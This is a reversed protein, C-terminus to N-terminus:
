EFNETDIGLTPITFWLDISSGKKITEESSNEPSQRWITAQLTDIETVITTDYVLAGVNLGISTLVDKAEDLTRGLLDPVVTREDSLGSGVVLDIATGKNVFANKPIPKGNLSQSLVLNIFESPRYEIRGMRLGSGSLRSQADRLSVDVLNPVKVKEPALSSIVVYIVRNQKVKYGAKPQQSIVTGPRVDPLYLSDIIQYRMKKKKVAQDLKEIAFGKLDPVSYSKGHHTYLKISLSALLVMGLVFALVYIIQRFFLKSKLFSILSM